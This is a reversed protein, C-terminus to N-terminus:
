YSWARPATTRIDLHIFRSERSGTLNVGIGTFGMAFARGLIRHCDATKVRFDIAAHAHMGVPKGKATKRAEIPHTPHRYGSNVNFPVGAWTRLAQVRDMLLTFEAINPNEEGTHQCSLDSYTFNKWRDYDYLRM